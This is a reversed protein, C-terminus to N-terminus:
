SCKSNLFKNLENVWYAVNNHDSSKYWVLTSEVNDDPPMPRFGLGIYFFYVIRSYGIIIIYQDSMISKRRSMGPNSGILSSELKWKPQKADLTQYFVTLM